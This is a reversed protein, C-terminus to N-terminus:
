DCLVKLVETALVIHGARNPHVPEPCFVASDRYALHNQFAEHTKVLRAGHKAAMERVVAIYEPLLDLVRSRITQGTHDQSIYFPEILVLQADTKERTDALIWDYCERYLSAPVPEPAQVLTSCLDNIGVKVSVWDPRHRIVDDQWRTKHGTVRDGGIGRNLYRINREPWRATIMEVLLSVYGTGLPAAEARRGCDTISDGIFVVTQGDQFCLDGM